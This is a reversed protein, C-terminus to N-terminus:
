RQINCRPLTNLLLRVGRETVRTRHVMMADLKKVRTFHMLGADSILTDDLYVWRLELSDLSEKIRDIEQDTIDKNNMLLIDILRFSEKPLVNTQYTKGSDDIQVGITGRHELVWKAVTV